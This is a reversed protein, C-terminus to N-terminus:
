TLLRNVEPKGVLLMYAARKKGMQAVHGAWWMMRPKITNISSSSSVFGRLEEKHLKRWGGM